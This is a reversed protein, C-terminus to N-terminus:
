MPMAGKVLVGSGYRVHPCAEAIRRAEEANEARIFVFGVIIEEPPVDPEFATVGMGASTLFVGPDANLESGTIYRGEAELDGLWMAYEEQRALREDPTLAEMNEWSGTFLLLFQQLGPDPVPAVVGPIPPAGATDGPPAIWGRAYWGSAPLLFLAAVTAARRIWPGVDRAARAPEGKAERLAGDALPPAVGGPSAALGRLAELGRRADELEAALQPSAAMEQELAEREETTARGELYRLLREDFRESM